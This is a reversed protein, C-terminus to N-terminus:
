KAALGMAAALAVGVAATALGSATASADAKGETGTDVTSTSTTPMKSTGTTCNNCTTMASTDRFVALAASGVNSGNGDYCPCWPKYQVEGTPTTYTKTEGSCGDYLERCKELTVLTEKGSSDLM